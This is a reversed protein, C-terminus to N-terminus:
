GSKARWREVYKGLIDVEINLRDKPKKGKLTTCKLTYPILYISFHSGKIANVTLSVGDLAISGKTLIYKKLRPPFTIQWEQGEILSRPGKSRWLRSPGETPSRPGKSYKKIKTLTGFADVHGLVLHGGLRDHLRLARELNVPSGEGIEGLTTVRLSELAVDVDFSRQRRAVVTLCVGNVAISEGLKVRALSFPSRVTLRHSTRRRVIKRVTGIGEIIGTFM